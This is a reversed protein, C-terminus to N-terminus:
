ANSYAFQCTASKDLLTSYGPADIIYDPNLLDYRERELMEYDSGSKKREWALIEFMGQLTANVVTNHVQLVEEISGQSFKRMDQLKNHSYLLCQKGHTTLPYLLCTGLGVEALM